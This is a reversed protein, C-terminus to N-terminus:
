TKSPLHAPEMTFTKHKPSHSRSHTVKTQIHIAQEPPSHTKHLTSPHHLRLQSLLALLTLTTPNSYFFRVQGKRLTCTFKWHITPVRMCTWSHACPLVSSAAPPTVLPVFGIAPHPHFLTRIQVDHTSSRFQIQEPILTGSVALLAVHTQRVATHHASGYVCALTCGCLQGEVAEWHVHKGISTCMHTDKAVLSQTQAPPLHAERPMAATDPLYHM